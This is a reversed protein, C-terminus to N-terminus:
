ERCDETVCLGTLANEKVVALNLTDDTRNIFFADFRPEFYFDSIGGIARGLKTCLFANVQGIGFETNRGQRRFVM